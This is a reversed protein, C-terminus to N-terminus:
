IIGLGNKQVWGIKGDPLMIKLWDNKVEEVEVETGAHLKFLVVNQVNSGSHVSIEEELVVGSQSYIDKYIKTVTSGASLIYIIGALILLWNLFDSQTYIKIGAVVFFISNIVLFSFLLERKNLRYYWFFVTELLLKYGKDEIKDKTEMYAYELNMKLDAFRPIFKQARKYNLVAQGIKGTKLYCNGLNYYLYGNENKTLLKTYAKIAEQYHGIQYDQNAQLFMSNSDQPPNTQAYGVGMCIFITIFVALQTKITKNM